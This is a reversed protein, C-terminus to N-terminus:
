VFSVFFVLNNEGIIINIIFATVTCRVLVTIGPEKFLVSCVTLMICSGYHLIKKVFSETLYVCVCVCLSFTVYIIGYNRCIGPVNHVSPWFQLCVIFM